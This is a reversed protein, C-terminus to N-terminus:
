ASVAAKLMKDYHLVFDKFFVSHLLMVAAEPTSEKEIAAQLCEHWQLQDQPKEVPQNAEDRPRKRSAIMYEEPLEILARGQKMAYNIWNFFHRDSEFQTIHSRLSHGSNGVVDFCKSSCDLRGSEVELLWHFHWKYRPHAPQPHEELGVVFANVRMPEGHRQFGRVTSYVHDQVMQLTLEEERLGSITSGFRHTRLRYDRNRPAQGRGRQGGRGQVIVQAESPRANAFSGSPAPPLSAKLSEFAEIIARTKADAAAKDAPSPNPGRKDSHWELLAAKRAKKLMDLDLRDPVQPFNLVDYPCQLTEDHQEM